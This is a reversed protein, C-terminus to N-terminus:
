YLYIVEFAFILTIDLFFFNQLEMRHAGGKQFKYGIVKIM